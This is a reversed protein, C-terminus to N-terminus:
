QFVRVYDVAMTQPFVTSANPSGPWDGGVAINFIFFFENQFESLQAPTIDAEHFEIDDRLWKISNEDWIISFVHFEEAFKGTALSNSEGYYVHNGFDDWHLTGHVTRDNFGAGGIMEMIDIEGCAPWGVSSINEGLMWLAPWIGQGFPLAARIDIRGYQFFQKGKTIIRSSTYQYGDFAEEKATIVLLGDSVTTNEARYYQLENNGWGSSGNGIEFTWDSSLSTGDFEDSWVLTYGPYSLPTSYGTTPIGGTWGLDVEVEVLDTTEVFESPLSHARTRISYTGTESFTYDAEGNNSEIVVTDNVDFFTFSYYNTNDASATIIVQGDDVSIETTLNSPLLVDNNVETKSCSNLVAIGFATLLFYSTNRFLYNM